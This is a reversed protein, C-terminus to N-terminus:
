TTKNESKRGRNAASIWNIAVVFLMFTAAGAIWINKNNGPISSNITNLKVKMRESDSKVNIIVRNSPATTHLPVVSFDFRDLVTSSIITNSRTYANIQKLIGNTNYVITERAVFAFRGRKASMGNPYAKVVEQFDRYAQETANREFAILSVGAINTSFSTYDTFRSDNESPIFYDALSKLARSQPQRIVRGMIYTDSNTQTIVETQTLIPQNVNINRWVLKYQGNNHEWAYEISTSSGGSITRGRFSLTRNLGSADRVQQFETKSAYLRPYCTSVLLAFYFLYLRIM